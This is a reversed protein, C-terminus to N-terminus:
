FGGNDLLAQSDGASFPYQSYPASMEAANQLATVLLSHALLKTM